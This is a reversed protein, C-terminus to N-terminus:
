HSHGYSSKDTSYVDTVRLLGTGSTVIHDGGKIGKVEVKYGHDFENLIQADQLRFFGDRFRYVAKNMKYTVLTEKTIMFTSSDVKKFEIGLSKIAEESLMFGKNEDIALIAKGKGVAKGSGEHDDHGVHGDEKKDGHDSHEEKKHDDHEKHEEISEHDDHESEHDHAEGETHDEKKEKNSMHGHGEESHVSFSGLLAIAFVLLINEKM